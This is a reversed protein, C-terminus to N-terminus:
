QEVDSEERRILDEMNDVRILQPFNEYPTCITIKGTLNDKFLKSNSWDPSGYKQEIDMDCAVNRNRFEPV